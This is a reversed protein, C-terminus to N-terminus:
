LICASMGSQALPKKKEKKKKKVVVSPKFGMGSARWDSRSGGIGAVMEAVVVVKVLDVPVWSGILYLCVYRISCSTQKKEKTIKKVTYLRSSGMDAVMEAVVVVVVVSQCGRTQGAAAAM